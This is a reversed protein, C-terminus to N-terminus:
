IEGVRFEHGKGVHVHEGLRILPMFEELYGEFVARGIVGGMKM